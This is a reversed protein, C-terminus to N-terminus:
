QKVNKQWTYYMPIDHYLYQRAAANTANLEFFQTLKTHRVAQNQLREEEQGPEFYVNQRGELHVPLRFVVHSKGQLNYSFLRWVAEPPSVYRSNVYWLLFISLMVLLINVPEIYSSLTQHQM